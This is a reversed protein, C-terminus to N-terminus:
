DHRKVATDAGFFGSADAGSTRFVGTGIMQALTAATAAIATVAFDFQFLARRHLFGAVRPVRVDRMRIVFRVRTGVWQLM